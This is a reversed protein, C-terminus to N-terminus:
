MMNFKPRGQTKIYVQLKSESRRMPKRILYKSIRRDRHFSEILEVGFQKQYAIQFRKLIAIEAAEKSIQNM